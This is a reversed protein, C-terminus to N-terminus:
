IGSDGMEFDANYFCKVDPSKKTTLKFFDSNPTVMINYICANKLLNIM